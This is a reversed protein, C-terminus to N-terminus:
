LSSKSKVYLGIQTFFMAAEALSIHGDSFALAGTTILSHLFDNENDDNSFRFDKLKEAADPLSAVGTLETRIVLMEAIVNEATTQAEDSAISDFTPKYQTYYTQVNDIISIVKNAADAVSIQGAADKHFLAGFALHHWFTRFNIHM